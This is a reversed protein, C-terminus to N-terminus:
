KLSFLRICLFLLFLTENGDDNLITINFNNTPSLSDLINATNAEVVFTEDAEIILDNLPHFSFCVRQGRTLYGPM